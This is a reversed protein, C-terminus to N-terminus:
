LKKILKAPVGAYLANSEELDKNVLSLSSIKVNDPIKVKGIAKAGVGFSVSNGLIPAQTPSSQSGKNGICNDGYLECDDGIVAGVNVVINNHYIRLRRGFKRPGLEISLKEGLTNKRRMYYVFLLKNIIGKRNEAYYGAKRAIIIYKGRQYLPNHTIMRFIRKLGTGYYYQKDEAIIERLEKYM